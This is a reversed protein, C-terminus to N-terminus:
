FGYSLWEIAITALMTQTARTASLIGAVDVVTATMNFCNYRERREHRRLVPDNVLSPVASVIMNIGPRLSAQLKLSYHLCDPPNEVKDELIVCVEALM